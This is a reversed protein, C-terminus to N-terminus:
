LTEQRANNGQVIPKPKPGRRGQKEHDLRAVERELFAIQEAMKKHEDLLFKVAFKEDWGYPLKM